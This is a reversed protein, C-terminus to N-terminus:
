KAGSFRSPVPNPVPKETCVPDGTLILRVGRRIRSPRRPTWANNPWGLVLEDHDREFLDHRILPVRFEAHLLEDIIGPCLSIPARLPNSGEVKGNQAPRRQHVLAAHIPHMRRVGVPLRETRLPVHNYNVVSANSFVFITSPSYFIASDSQDM